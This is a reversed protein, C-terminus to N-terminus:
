ITIDNWMLKIDPRISRIYEIVKRNGEERQLENSLNLIYIKKTYGYLVALNLIKLKPLYLLSHLDFVIGNLVQKQINRIDDSDSRIFIAHGTGIDEGIPVYKNREEFETKLSIQSNYLTDMTHFIDKLTADYGSTLATLKDNLLETKYMADKNYAKILSMKEENCCKLDTIEKVFEIKFDYMRECFLEMNDLTEKHNHKSYAIETTHREILNKNTLINTEVLSLRNIIDNIREYMISELRSELLVINDELQQIKSMSMKLQNSTNEDLQKMEELEQIKSTLKKDLDYIMKNLQPITESFLNIIKILIYTILALCVISFIINKIYYEIDNITNNDYYLLSYMEKNLVITDILKIIDKQKM